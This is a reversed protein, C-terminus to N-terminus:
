GDLEIDSWNEETLEGDGFVLNSIFSTYFLSLMYDASSLCDFRLLKTNYPLIYRRENIKLFSVANVFATGKCLDLHMFKSFSASSSIIDLIFLLIDLFFDNM